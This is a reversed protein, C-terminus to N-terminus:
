MLVCQTLFVKKEKQYGGGVGGGGGGGGGGVEVNRCKIVFDQCM